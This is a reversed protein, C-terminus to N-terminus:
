RETEAKFGDQQHGDSVHNPRHDADGFYWLGCVPRHPNKVVSRQHRQVTSAIRIWRSCRTSSSTSVLPAQAFTERPDDKATNDM